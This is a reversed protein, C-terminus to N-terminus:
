IQILSLEKLKLNHFPFVDEGEISSRREFDVKSMPVIVSFPYEVNEVLRLPELLDWRSEDDEFALKPAIQGGPVFYSDEEGCAGDLPLNVVSGPEVHLGQNLTIHLEAGKPTSISFKSLPIM